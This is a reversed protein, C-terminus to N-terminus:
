SLESIFQKLKTASVYSLNKYGYFHNFKDSKLYELTTPELEFQGEFGYCSCHSGSMEMLTGTEKHKFLFWSSSEYGEANEYAVLVNYNQMILATENMNHLNEKDKRYDRTSDSYQQVIDRIVEMESQGEYDELALMEM